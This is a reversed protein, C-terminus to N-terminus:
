NYEGVGRRILKNIKTLLKLARLNYNCCEFAIGNKKTNQILESKERVREKLHYHLRYLNM